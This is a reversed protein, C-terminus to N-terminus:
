TLKTSLYERQFNSNSDPPSVFKNVTFSKNFVGQILVLAKNEACLDCHSTPLIDPLM